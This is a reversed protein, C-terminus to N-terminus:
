AIGVTARMRGLEVYKGWRWGIAGMKNARCFQRRALRDRVSKADTLFRAAALSDAAANREAQTSEGACRAQSDLHM